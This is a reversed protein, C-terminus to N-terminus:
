KAILEYDDGTEGAFEKLSRAFSRDKSYKTMLYTLIGCHISIISIEKSKQGIRHIRGLFQHRSAENSPYISTICTKIKTLTYGTVHQLTTIVVKVNTKTEPKLIISHERDILFIEKKKLEGSKVLMKRLMKQHEKSKALVFVIENKEVVHLLVQKVIERDAAKYCVALAAQFDFKNGTGGLKPTVSAYYAIEEKPKFPAMIDLRNVTVGTNYKRSVLAGFAVLYNFNDVHFEVIQELWLILDTCKNNKVITGTMAVFDRSLRSIELAISSRITTSTSALHFEDLIFLMDNAYRKLREYVGKRRMQDHCVINIKFPELESDVDNTVVVHYPVGFREFEGIANAIASPPASYVCYTPMKKKEILYKIFSMVIMTKGLGVDIFLEHGRKGSEVKAIMDDLADQQHNFLPTEDDGRIPQWYEANYTELSEEETGANIVSKIRDRLSWLLPGNKVLFSNDGLELSVPYLTCIACLIDHVASDMLSVDLKTASGDRSIDYLKIVPRYNSLYMYLRKLVLISYSAVVNDFLADCGVVVNNNGRSKLAGTAWNNNNAVMEREDFLNVINIAEDEWSVRGTKDAYELEYEDNDDNLWVKAGKFVDSLGSPVHKLHYGARLKARALEIAEEKEDLSLDDEIEKDKPQGSSKPNRIVVMDYIDDTRLVVLVDPGKASLKVEIVGILGALWSADIKYTFKYESDFQFDDVIMPENKTYKQEFICAQAFRVQKVFPEEEM